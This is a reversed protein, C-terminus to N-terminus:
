FKSAVSWTHHLCIPSVQTMRLKAEWKQIREEFPKKYPSFSLGITMVVHDDLQQLMDDTIKVIYTGTDKYPLLDFVINTWERIMKELMQVFVCNNYGCKNVKNMKGEGIKSLIHM